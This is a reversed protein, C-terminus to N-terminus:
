SKSPEDSSGSSMALTKSLNQSKVFDIEAYSLPPQKEDADSSNRSKARASSDGAAQVDQPAGLDLKVYNLPKPEQPQGSPNLMDMGPSSAQGGGLNGCTTSLQQQHYSNLDSLSHRSRSGSSCGDGGDDGSPSSASLQLGGPAGSSTTTSVSGGPSPDLNHMCPTSGPRILGQTQEGQVEKAGASGIGAGALTTVDNLSHRIRSEVPVIKAELQQSTLPSVEGGFFEGNNNCSSPTTAPSLPSRDLSNGPSREGGEDRVWASACGSRKGSGKLSSTSSNLSSTSDSKKDGRLSDNSSSVRRASKQSSNSSGSSHKHRTYSTSPSPCELQGIGQLAPNPFEATTGSPSSMARHLGANLQQHQPSPQDSSLGQQRIRDQKEMKPKQHGNNNTKNNKGPAPSNDNSSLPPTSSARMNREGCGVDVKLPTGVGSRSVSASSGQIYSVARTPTPIVNEKMSSNDKSECSKSDSATNSATNSSATTAPNYGMYESDDGVAVVPKVLSHQSTSPSTQSGTKARPSVGSSPSVPPITSGLKPHAPVSSAKSAPGKQIYSVVSGPKSPSISSSSKSPDYGVYDSTDAIHQLGPPTVTAHSAPQAAPVEGPEYDVYESDSKTEPAQRAIMMQTGLPSSFPPPGPQHPHPIVGPEYGVYDSNDKTPPQSSASSSGKPQGHSSSPSSPSQAHTHHPHPQHQHQHPHAQHQHQQRPTSSPHHQLGQIYSAQPLPHPAPSAIVQAMRSLGGSSLSSAVLEPPLAPNYMTYGCDNEDSGPLSPVTTPSRSMNSFSGSSSSSPIGRAASSSPHSPTLSQNHPQHEADQLTVTPAFEIYEDAMEEQMERQTKRIPILNGAHVMLQQQQQQQQLYHERPHLNSGDGRSSFSLSKSGSSAGSKSVPRSGMSASKKRFDKGLSGYKEMSSQRSASSSKSRLSDNSGGTRTSTSASHGGYQGSSSGGGMSSMSNSSPKRGSGPRSSGAAKKDKSGLSGTRPKGSSSSSSSHGKPHAPDYIVYTDVNEMSVSRAQDNQGRGGPIDMNIYAGQNSPSQQRPHSSSIHQMNPRTDSSFSHRARFDMRIYAEKSSTGGTASGISGSSKLPAMEAYDGKNQHHLRDSSSTKNSDSRRSSASDTRIRHASSSSTSLTSSSPFGSMANGPQMNVYGDAESRM